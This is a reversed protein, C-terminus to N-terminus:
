ALFDDRRQGGPVPQVVRGDFLAEGHKQFILSTRCRYQGKDSLGHLVVAHSLLTVTRGCPFHAEDRQVAWASIITRLGLFQRRIGLVTQGGASFAPHFCVELPADITGRDHSDHLIKCQQIHVSVSRTAPGGNIQCRERVTAAGILPRWCLRSRVPAKALLPAHHIPRGVRSVRTPRSWWRSRIAEGM